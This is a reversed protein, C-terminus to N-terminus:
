HVSAANAWNCWNLSCFIDVTQYSGFTSGFSDIQTVQPSVWSVRSNDLVENCNIMGYHCKVYSNQDFAYPKLSIRYIKFLPKFIIISEIFNVCDVVFEINLLSLLWYWWWRKRTRTRGRILYIWTKMMYRRIHVWEIVVEDQLM